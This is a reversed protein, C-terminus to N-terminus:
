RGRPVAEPAPSASPEEAQEHVELDGLVTVVAALGVQGTSCASRVPAGTRIRSVVALDPLRHVVVESGAVPDVASGLDRGALLFRGESDASLSTVKRGGEYSVPGGAPRGDAHIASVTRGSADAIVFLGASPVAVARGKPFEGAVSRRIKWSRPEIYHVWTKSGRRELGVAGQGDPWLIVPFMGPLHYAREHGAPWIWAASQGDGFLADGAANAQFFDLGRVRVPGAARKGTDAAFTAMTQDADACTMFIESGRWAPGGRADEVPKSWLPTGTRADLLTLEGSGKSFCALWRGGPSFACADVGERRYLRRFKLPVAPGLAEPTEGPRSGVEPGPSELGARGDGRPSNAAPPAEAVRERPAACAAPALLACASIWRLIVSM